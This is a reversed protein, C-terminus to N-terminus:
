MIAITKLNEIIKIMLLSKLLRKGCNYCVKADQHSKLQEKTLPLMKKKLIM